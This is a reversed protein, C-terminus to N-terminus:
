QPRDADPAPVPLGAASLSRRACARKEPDNSHLCAMCRYPLVGSDPVANVHPHEM